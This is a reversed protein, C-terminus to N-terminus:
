EPRVMRKRNICMIRKTSNDVMQVMIHTQKSPIINAMIRKGTMTDYARLGRMPAKVTTFYEIIDDFMEEYSALKIYRQCFNLRDHSVYDEIFWVSRDFNENNFRNENKDLKEPLLVKGVQTNPAM